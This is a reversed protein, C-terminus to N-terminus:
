GVEAAIRAATDRDVEAYVESMTATSHGLLIRAAEIGHEKRIRTAASHRLQYPHWTAVMPLPEGAATGAEAAAEAAERNVEQRRANEAKVARSVALRLAGADYVEGLPRDVNAALQHGKQRGYFPTQRGERRRRRADAEGEVPRFCHRGAPRVLFPALVRQAGPGFHLVRRKGKAATKHATLDVTWVEGTRDIDQPTLAFLESPRAGTWWMLEVIAAVPRSLHPLTADVHEREVPDVKRPERVGPKGARLLPVARLGELVTAPILEEGVGWRFCNRVVATRENITTRGLRGGGIWSQVVTKLRLPSFEAALEDGFLRVLEDLALRYRVENNAFWGPSQEAELAALWRDVLGAVSLAEPKPEEPVRGRAIWRAVHRDYAAATDAPVKRENPWPGFWIAQGDFRAYARRSRKHRRLVPVRGTPPISTPKTM